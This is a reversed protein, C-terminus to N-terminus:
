EYDKETEIPKHPITKWYARLADAIAQKHAESKRKGIMSSKIKEKTEKKLERYERKM